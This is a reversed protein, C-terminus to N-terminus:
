KGGKKMEPINAIGLIEKRRKAEYDKLNPGYIETNMLEERSPVADLKLKKAKAQVGVICKTM